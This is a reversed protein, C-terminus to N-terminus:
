SHKTLSIVLSQAPVDVEDVVGSRPELWVTFAVPSAVAFGVDGAPINAPKSPVAPDVHMVFTRAATPNAITFASVRAEDALAPMVIFSMVLAQDTIAMAQTGPLMRVPVTLREGNHIFAGTLGDLALRVDTTKGSATYAAVFSMPSLTSAAVTQDASAQVTGFSPDAITEDEHISIVNGTRKVTLTSTGTAAGNQNLTYQYTGDAMLAAARATSVCALEAALCAAALFMVQRKM